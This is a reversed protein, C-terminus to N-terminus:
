SFTFDYYDRAFDLSETSTLKLRECRSEEVLGSIVTTSGKTAFAPKETVAQGHSAVAFFTASAFARAM